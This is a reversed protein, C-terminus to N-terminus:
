DASHIQMYRLVKGSAKELEVIATGYRTLLPLYLRDQSKSPASGEVAHDNPLIQFRAMDELNGPGLSQYRDALTQIPTGGNQSALMLALAEHLDEPLKLYVVPPSNGTDLERLEPFQRTGLVIQERTVTRFTDYAFVVFAPRQQYMILCGWVLAAAQLTGIAALDFRLSAKGRRFVIFTLLPGLVIDIAAALRVFQWGGDIWFYPWPYWLTFMIGVTLAFVALSIAFHIGAAKLKAKVTERSM